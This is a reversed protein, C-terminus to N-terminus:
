VIATCVLGSRGNDTKSEGDNTDNAAGGCAALTLSALFLAKKMDRRRSCSAPRRSPAPIGAEEDAIRSRGDVGESRVSPCTRVCPLRKDATLFVGRLFRPLRRGRLLTSGVRTASAANSRMLVTSVFDPRCSRSPAGSDVFSRAVCACYRPVSSG